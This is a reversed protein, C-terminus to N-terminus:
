QDNLDGMGTDIKFMAFHDPRIQFIVTRLRERRDASRAPSAFCLTCM